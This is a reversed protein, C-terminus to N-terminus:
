TKEEYKNVKKAAACGQWVKVYDIIFDDPLNEPDLAGSWERTLLWPKTSIEGTVKLYLPMATVDKAYRRWVEEGDIYYVLEDASWDLRYTHFGQRIGARVTKHVDSITDGRGENIHVAHRLEDTWGFGEIIDIETSIGSPIDDNFLWFAAWWGSAQPLRARIEFRGYAQEFTGETSIMGSAYDYPDADDNQNSVQTTKIVLQGQGNLRVNDSRWYGDPGEENPRRNINKSIWKRSNVAGKGNFDDSFTLRCTSSLPDITEALSSTECAAM